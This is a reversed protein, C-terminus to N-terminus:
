YLDESFLREGRYGGAASPIGAAQQLEYGEARNVFRGRSTLFGQVTVTISQGAESWEEAVRLGQCHRHCRIVRGDALLIAACICVEAQQEDRSAGGASGVTAQELYEVALHWQTSSLWAEPELSESMVAVVDLVLKRASRLKDLEAQQEDRAKACADSMHVTLELSRLCNMVLKFTRWNLVIGSTNIYRGKQGQQELEILDAWADPGIGLRAYHPLKHAPTESRSDSPEAKLTESGPSSPDPDPKQNETTM